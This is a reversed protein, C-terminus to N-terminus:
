EAETEERHKEILDQTLKDGSANGDVDGYQAAISRLEQRGMEVIETESFESAPPPGGDGNQDTDADGDGADTGAEQVGDELPEHGAEVLREHVDDFDDRSEDVEFVGDEDIPVTDRVPTLSIAGAAAEGDRHQYRM